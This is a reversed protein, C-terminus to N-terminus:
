PLQWGITVPARGSSPSVASVDNRQGADSLRPRGGASSFIHDERECQKRQGGREAELVGHM